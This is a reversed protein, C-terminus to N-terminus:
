IGGAKELAERRVLMCFGVLLNTRYLRHELPNAINQSGMVFNSMPGVAAIDPYDDLVKQLDHQWAGSGPVIQIDDNILGVYPTTVGELGKVLGGEWGLNKGGTDVLEVRPHPSLTLPDGNNVVRIVAPAPLPDDARMGPTHECISNLAMALIRGNNFTPMIWTIM